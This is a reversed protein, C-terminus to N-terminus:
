AVVGPSKGPYRRTRAPTGSTCFRMRTKLWRQVDQEDFEKLWSPPHHMLAIRLDADKAQLFADGVQKDGVLLNGRDIVKNRSDRTYGSFWALELGGFRCACHSVRSLM